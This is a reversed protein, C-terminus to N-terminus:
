GVTIRSQNAAHVLSEDRKRTLQTPSVKLGFRELEQRLRKEEIMCEGNSFGDTELQVDGNPGIVARISKSMM